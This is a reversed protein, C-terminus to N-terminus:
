ESQDEEFTVLVGVVGIFNVVARWAHWEAALPQADNQIDLPALM